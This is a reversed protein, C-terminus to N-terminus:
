DNETRRGHNLIPLVSSTNSGKLKDVNIRNKTVAEEDFIARKDKLTYHLLNDRERGREGQRTM